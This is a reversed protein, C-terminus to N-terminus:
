AKDMGAWLNMSNLQTEGAHKLQLFLQMKYSALMAVFMSILFEARTRTQMFLTIPTALAADDLSEIGALMDALETDLITEWNQPDFNDSLAQYDAFVAMDQEGKVVLQLQKGLSYGLYVMLDKVSRQGETFKHGLHQEHNIKTGLHKLIRFENKLNDIFQAKSYM